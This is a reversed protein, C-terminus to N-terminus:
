PEAKKVIPMSDGGSAYIYRFLEFLTYGLSAGWAANAGTQILEANDNIGIYNGAIGATILSAPLIIWFAGYSRYFRQRANEVRKEEPSVPRITSFAARGGGNEQFFQARGKVFGGDRYIATGIEGEATEVSIYAFENRPLEITFPTEGVYLSGLFVRSGPNDPVTVEFASMGFPTLEIFLEALEAANLELPVSATRYNDAQITVEVNGPPRTHTEMDGRGAYSGDILVIADQPSAHVLIGSPLSESVVVALRSSIEDMVDNIDENSFLVNDEFSYSRTYLTYMKVNLYLRDHYESLSCLLFADAKQGTCFRYEGGEEPPKPFTGSTNGDV